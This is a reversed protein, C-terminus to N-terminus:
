SSALSKERRRRHPAEKPPRGSFIGGKASGEGTRRDSIGGGTACSKILLDRRQHAIRGDLRLSEGGGERSRKRRGKKKEQGRTLVTKREGKKLNPKKGLQRQAFPLNGPASLSRPTGKKKKSATHIRTSREGGGIRRKCPSSPERMRHSPRKGREKKLGWGWVGGGSSSLTPNEEPQRERNKGEKSSNCCGGGLGSYPSSRKWCIM